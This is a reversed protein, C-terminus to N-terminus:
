NAPDTAFDVRNTGIILAAVLVSCVFLGTRIRTLSDAQANFVTQDLLRDIKSVLYGSTFVAVASGIEKFLKTEGENLPVWLVALGSGLLLGFIVVLVNIMKEDYSTSKKAAEAGDKTYIRFCLFILVGALALGTWNAFSVMVHHRSFNFLNLFGHYEPENM